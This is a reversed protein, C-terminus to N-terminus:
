RVTRVLRRRLPELQLGPSLRVVPLPHLQPRRRCLRPRDRWVGLSRGQHLSHDPQWAAAPRCVCRTLTRHAPCCRDWRLARVQRASVVIANKTRSAQQVVPKAVPAATAGGGGAQGAPGGAPGPTASSSRVPVGGVAAANRLSGAQGGAGTSSSNSGIAAASSAQQGPLPRAPPPQRARPSPPGSPPSPMRRPLQAASTFAPPSPDPSPMGALQERARELPYPSQRCGGRERSATMASQGAPRGVGGQSSSSARLRRWCAARASEGVVVLSRSLGAVVDSLIPCSSSIERGM